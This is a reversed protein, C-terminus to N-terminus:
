LAPDRIVEKNEHIHIATSQYLQDGQKFSKVLCKPRASPAKLITFYAREESASM